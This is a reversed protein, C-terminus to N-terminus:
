DDHSCEPEPEDHDVTGEARGEEDVSPVFRSWSRSLTWFLQDFGETTDSLLLQLLQSCHIISMIRWWTENWSLILDCWASQKIAYSRGIRHTQVTSLSALCWHSLGHLCAADAHFLEESGIVIHTLCALDTKVVILYHTLMSLFALIWHRLSKNDYQRTLSVQEM